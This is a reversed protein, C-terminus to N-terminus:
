FYIGVSSWYFHLVRPYVWTRTYGLTSHSMGTHNGVGVMRIRTNTRTHTRTHGSAGPPIGTNKGVQLVPHLHHLGVELHALGQHPAQQHLPFFTHLDVGHHYRVPFTPRNGLPAQM